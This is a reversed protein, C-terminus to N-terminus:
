RLVEYIFLIGWNVNKIQIINNYNLIRCLLICLIIGLLLVMIWWSMLYSLLWVVNELIYLHQFYFFINLGVSKDDLSLFMYDHFFIIEIYFKYCIKFILRLKIIIYKLKLKIWVLFFHLFFYNNIWFKLVRIIFVCFRCMVFFLVMYHLFWPINLILYFFICILWNWQWPWILTAHRMSCFYYYILM